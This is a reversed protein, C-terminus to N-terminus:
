NKPTLAAHIGQALCRAMRDIKEVSLPVDDLQYDTFDDAWSSLLHKPIDLSISPVNKLHQSSLYAASACYPVNEHQPYGERALVNQIEALLRPDAWRQGHDDATILDISRQYKHDRAEIFQLVYDELRNFSVPLIYRTGNGDVPCFSAMTHVDIMYQAAGSRLLAYLEEVRALTRRQIDLFAEKLEVFLSTPLCQRLCHDLLRGGDIIARPYNLCIVQAEVDYHRALQHAISHALEDAGVDREIALYTEFLPWVAQLRADAEIAPFAELFDKADAGHPSILLVRSPGGAEYTTEKLSQYTM